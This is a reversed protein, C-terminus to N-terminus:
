IETLSKRTCSDSRIATDENNGHYLIPNWNLRSRRYDSNPKQTRDAMHYYLVFPELFNNAWNFICVVQWICGSSSIDKIWIISVNYVNSNNYGAGFFRSLLENEKERWLSGERIILLIDWWGGISLCYHLYSNLLNDLIICCKIDKYFYHAYYTIYRM